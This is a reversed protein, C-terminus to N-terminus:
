LERLLEFCKSPASPGDFRIPCETVVVKCFQLVSETLPRFQQSIEDTSYTVLLKRVVSLISNTYYDDFPRHNKM